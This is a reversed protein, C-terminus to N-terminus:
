CTDQGASRQSHSPLPQGGPGRHEEHGQDVLLGALRRVGSTDVLHACDDCLQGHQGSGKFNRVILVLSSGTGVCLCWASVADDGGFPYFNLFSLVSALSLVPGFGYLINRVITALLISKSKPLQNPGYRLLYDAAQSSDLGKQVSQIGHAKLLDDISMRHFSKDGDEDGGPHTQNSKVFRTIGVAKAIARVASNM